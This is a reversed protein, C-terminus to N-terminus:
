EAIMDGRALWSAPAERIARVVSGAAGVVTATSGLAAARVTVPAWASTVTRATIERSVPGALWPTLPAFIGGLVVTDVDILNVVDAAAVGLAGGADALADLVARDGAEAQSRLQAAPEETSSPLGAARLLVEQNTYAELCGRAGCRCAPGGPNITVHGLEGGYGRPGRLLRGELVLGAGVGIEGSIYVFSSAPEAHAHLEALAALNAENEVTLANVYQTSDRLLGAVDVDHWDLNPAVRVVGGGNVLGPVGVCIGAVTLGEGAAEARADAALRALDALVRSPRRGRQDRHRVQLVRTAGTLDLVGAALYDVNIELGLGAPGTTALALATAPRGAGTRPVPQLEAVLGGAMLEDVLGSVTIRTLGTATALDARTLPGGRAITGLVLALNAERVDRQSTRPPRPAPPLAM